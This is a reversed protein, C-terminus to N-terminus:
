SQVQQTSAYFKFVCKVSHDTHSQVLLVQVFIFCSTFGLLVLTKTMIQEICCSLNFILPTHDIFMWPFAAQALFPGKIQYSLKVMANLFHQEQM